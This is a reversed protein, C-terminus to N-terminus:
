NYLLPYCRALRLPSYVGTLKWTSSTFMSSHYMESLSAPFPIHHALSAARSTAMRRPSLQHGAPWRVRGQQWDGRSGCARCRRGRLAVLLPRAHHGGEWGCPCWGRLTCDRAAQAALPWEVWLARGGGHRALRECAGWDRDGADRLACALGRTTAPAVQRNNAAYFVGASSPPCPRPLKPARTGLRCDMLKPRTCRAASPM